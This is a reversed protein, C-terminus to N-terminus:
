AYIGDCHMNIKLRRACKRSSYHQVKHEMVYMYVYTCTCTPSHRSVAALNPANLSHHNNRWELKDYKQICIADSANLTFLGNLKYHLIDTSFTDTWWWAYNYSDRTYAQTWQQTPTTHIRYLTFEDTQVHVDYTKTYMRTCTRAECPGNVDMVNLMYMWRM